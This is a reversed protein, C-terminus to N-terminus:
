GKALELLNEVPRGLVAKDGVVGIPRQLLTPHDAMLAILEATKEEGTLGLEKYAKDNKRLVDKPTMGLKKLVRKIEAKTLPEQTYERYRYEIGKEKLL